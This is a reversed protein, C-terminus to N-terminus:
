DTPAIDPAAAAAGSAVLRSVAESIHADDPRPILKKSMELAPEFRELLNM